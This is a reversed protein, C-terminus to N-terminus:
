TTTTTTTTTTQNKNMMIINPFTVRLVVVLINTLSENEWGEFTCKHLIRNVKSCNLSPVFERSVLALDSAAKFSM